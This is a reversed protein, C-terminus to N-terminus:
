NGGNEKVELMAMIEIADRLVEVSNTAILIPIAPFNEIGSGEEDICKFSKYDIDIKKKEARSKACDLLKEFEGNDLMYKIAKKFLSNVTM